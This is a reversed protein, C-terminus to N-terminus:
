FAKTSDITLEGDGRVVKFSDSDEFGNKKAIGDYFDVWFANNGKDQATAFTDGRRWHSMITPYEYMSDTNVKLSGNVVQFGAALFDNTQSEGYCATNYLLRLKSALLHHDSLAASVQATDYAGEEFWVTKPAGHLNVFVDVAKVNEGAAVTALSDGFGALTADKGKLTYIHNYYLGLKEWATSVANVELFRYLWKYQDMGHTALNAVIMLEREKHAVAMKGSSDAHVVSAGGVLLACVSLLLKKM